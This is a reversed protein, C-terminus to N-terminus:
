NVFRQVAEKGRPMNSIPGMRRESSVAKKGLNLINGHLRITSLGKGFENTMQVQSINEDNWMKIFKEDDWFSVNNEDSM